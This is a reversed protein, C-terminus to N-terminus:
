QCRLKLGREARTMQPVKNCCGRVGRAEAISEAEMKIGTEETM